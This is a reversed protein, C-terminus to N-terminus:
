ALRELIEKTYASIVREHKEDIENMRRYEAMRRAHRDIYPKTLEVSAEADIRAIEKGIGGSAMNQMDYIVFVVKTPSQIILDFAYWIMKEPKVSLMLDRFDRAMEVFHGNHYAQKHIPFFEFAENEM